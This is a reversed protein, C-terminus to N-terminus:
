RSVALFFSQKKIKEHKLRNILDNSKTRKVAIYACYDLVEIKGLEDNKLGGKKYFLGV